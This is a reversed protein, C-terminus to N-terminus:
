HNNPGAGKLLNLFVVLVHLMVSLLKCVSSFSMCIIHQVVFASCKIEKSQLISLHTSEIGTNESPRKLPPKGRPSGGKVM